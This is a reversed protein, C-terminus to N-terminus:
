IFRYIAISCFVNSLYLFIVLFVKGIHKFRTHFSCFFKFAIKTLVCHDICLTLEVAHSMIDAPILYCILIFSISLILHCFSLHAFRMVLFSLLYLLVFINRQYWHSAFKTLFSWVFYTFFLQLHKTPLRALSNCPGQLWPFIQSM